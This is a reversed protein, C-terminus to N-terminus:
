LNFFVTEGAGQLVIDFHYAVVGDASERQALLTAQREAPVCHLVPDETNDPDDAFYLRTILHNLL